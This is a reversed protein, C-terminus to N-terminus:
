GCGGSSCSCSGGSGCSGGGKPLPDNGPVKISESVSGAIQKAIDHLMEDVAQEAVKFRSVCDLESLQQEIAQVNAKAENFDPHFRGFRECDVFIDKAKAFKKMLQHVEPDQDVVMKWYAYEAVEVSQNVMDGIEYANLILQGMDLSSDSGGEYSPIWVLESPDSIPITQVKGVGENVNPKARYTIM